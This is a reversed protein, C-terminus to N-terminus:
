RKFQKQIIVSINHTQDGKPHSPIDRDYKEKKNPNAKNCIISSFVENLNSGELRYFDSIPSAKYYVQNGIAFALLESDYFLSLLGMKGLYNKTYKM